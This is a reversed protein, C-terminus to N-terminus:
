HFDRSCSPFESGAIPAAERAPTGPDSPGLRSTAREALGRLGLLSRALVHIVEGRRELRGTVVLFVAGFCAARHRDYVAPRVVINAIGTEDELTMFIIGRATAPRQRVTVLGGVVVAAGDDLGRLREAPVAGRRALDDRFFTVPHRELTLGVTRYDDVVREAATM